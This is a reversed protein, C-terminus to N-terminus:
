ALGGLADAASAHGRKAKAAASAKTARATVFAATEADAASDACRDLINKRVDAIRWRTCRPRRIAPAPFRGASVEAHVWSASMRILACVDKIDGLSVDSHADPLPPRRTPRARMAAPGAEKEHVRNNM